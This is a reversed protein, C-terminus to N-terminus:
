VTMGLAYYVQRTGGSEAAWTGLRSALSLVARVQPDLRGRRAPTLKFNTSPLIRAEDSLTLMGHYLGFCLAERSFPAVARVTEALSILLEPKRAIWAYLGTSSNTGDFTQAYQQSLTLPVPLFMLPHEPGRGDRELYASSFAYLILSCLAPNTDAFVDTTKM